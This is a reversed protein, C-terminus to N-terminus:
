RPDRRPDGLRRGDHGQAAPPLDPEARQRPAPVRGGITKIRQALQQAHLVETAVDAALAKKIVESRVGDLHVANAIYNQVTELEMAYAVALERVIDKNGAKDRDKKKAKPM